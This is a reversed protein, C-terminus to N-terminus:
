KLVYNWVVPLDSYNWNSDWGSLAKSAQCYVTLLTCGDFVGAGLNTVNKSIFIEKLSTCDCFAYSGITTVNSGIVVNTLMHCSSFAWEGISVVGNGIYVRTLSSCYSFADNDIVEVSDPIAIEKLSSCYSFSEKGIILLSDPLSISTLFNCGYFAYESINVVASPLNFGKNQKSAPYLLLTKGDKSYLVGNISKYVSNDVKVSFNSLCNCGYFAREGISIVGSGLVINKIASCYSFAYSRIYTVSNPVVLDKLSSCGYFSRIGITAVGSPISFNTLSSCGYFAYDNIATLNNPVIISTLSSCGYFAYSNINGGTITVKALSIPVYGKNGGYTIAGFVYGFHSYNADNESAGVFPLTLELLSTCNRFASEGISVVSDPVVVSSLSHCSAFSYEGINTLNNNLNINSLSICNYFAYDKIANGTITVKNLLNPVCTANENYNKAGFLYGFHCNVNDNKSAGTFPLTIEKLSTCNTFANEGISIVSDPIVINTLSYGAFASDGIATVSNSIYASKIYSKYKSFGVATGLYHEVQYNDASIKIVLSGGDKDIVQNNCHSCTEGVALNQHVSPADILVSSVMERKTEQCRSCKYSQTGFSLTCSVNPEGNKCWNHGLASNEKEITHVNDCGYDCRATETGNAQCTANNDYVYNTFSHSLLSDEVERIHFKNCGFECFATETGKEICSADNNYVYNSFLHDVKQGNEYTETGREGCSCVYYYKEPTQCTAPSALYEIEIVQKSFNHKHEPEKVGCASFAVMLLSLAFMLILISLIKKKM